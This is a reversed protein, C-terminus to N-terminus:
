AQRQRHRAKRICARLHTKLLSRGVTVTLAYGTLVAGIGGM